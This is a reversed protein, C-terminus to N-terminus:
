PDIFTTRSFAQVLTICPALIGGGVPQNKVPIGNIGSHQYIMLAYKPVQSMIERGITRDIIKKNVPITFRFVRARNSMSNFKAFQFAQAPADGADHAPLQPATIVTQFLRGGDEGPSECPFKSQDLTRARLSKTWIVTGWEKDWPGIPTDLHVTSFTGDANPISSQIDQWLQSLNTTFPTTGFATAPSGEHLRVLKCRIDFLPAMENCYAFLMEFQISKLFFERGIFQTKITGIDPFQSPKIILPFWLANRQALANYQM